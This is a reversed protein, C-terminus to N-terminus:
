SMSAPPRVGSEVKVRFAANIVERQLLPEDLPEFLPPEGRIDLPVAAEALTRRIDGVLLPFSNNKPLMRLLAELTTLRSAVLRSFHRNIRDQKTAVVDRKAVIIKMEISIAPEKGTNVSKNVQSM